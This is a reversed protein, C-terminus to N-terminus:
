PCNNIANAEPHDSSHAIGVPYVVTGQLRLVIATVSGDLMIIANGDTWRHTQEDDWWGRSLSVDTLALNETEVGRMLDIRGIAVGLERPDDTESSRAALSRICLRTTGSPLAFMYQKSDVQKVDIRMGDVVLHLDPDVTTTTAICPRQSKMSVTPSNSGVPVVFQPVVNPAVTLHALVPDAAFCDMDIEYFTRVFRAVKPSALVHALDVRSLNRATVPVHPIGLGDLAQEIFAPNDDMPITIKPIKQEGLQIFWLQPSFHIFRPDAIIRAVTLVHEVFGEILNIQDGPSRYALRDDPRFKKFHEDVASLFRRYPNRVLIVSAYSQADAIVRPFLVRLEWLRLHTHDLRNRFFPADDIGWFVFPDDHYSELAIRLSTGACKPNHFLIFRRAHSIIM